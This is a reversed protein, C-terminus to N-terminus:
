YDRNWVGLIYANEKEANGGAKDYQKAWRGM